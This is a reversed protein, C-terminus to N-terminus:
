APAKPSVACLCISQARRFVHQCLAGAEDEEAVRAALQVADAALSCSSWLAAPPLQRLRAADAALALTAAVAAAM